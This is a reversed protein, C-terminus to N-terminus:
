KSELNYRLLKFDNARIGRIMDQIDNLKKSFDLGVRAPEYGHADTGSTMIFGHEKAYEEAKQDFEHNMNGVNVVEVADVFETHLRIKDIYARIRFPHAHIIYGGAAHVKHYQEEVTWSLMDKQEKLWEKTIGYILFEASKHTVEMGFFVDLGIRDGEDKANEYGKCFLDIREDWTLNKPICTNGNFFHDTVVIGTYGAEKYLRAQEAGSLKGCLSVEETHLHTEYLYSMTVM